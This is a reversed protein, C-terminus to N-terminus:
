DVASTHDPVVELGAVLRLRYTARFVASRAVERDTRASRLEAQADLYESGTIRGAEFLRRSEDALREALEVAQEETELRDHANAREAEAAALEVAAGDRTAALSALAAAEEAALRQRAAIRTARAVPTWSVLLVAEAWRDQDLGTNLLGIGRLQLEATPALNWANLRQRARVEAVDSRLATVDARADLELEGPAPPIALRDLPVPAVPEQIGLLRGLDARVVERRREFGRIEQELRLLALQLRDADSPLARGASVLQEVRLVQSELATLSQGAADLASDLEAIDLARELAAMIQANRTERARASAADAGRGQVAPQGLLTAADFLPQSVVVAGHGEWVPEQEIPAGGLPSPSTLAESRRLLEGELSLAPLFGARRAESVSRRAALAALGAARSAPSDVALRGIEGHTLSEPTQQADASDLPGLIMGAAAVMLVGAVAVGARPKSGSRRDRREGFMLRYLAPVVLITLATSAALGSIIAGAFPPWLSSASFLLPVMGAITTGATLVIPRFRETVAEILADNLDMGEARKSDALDILIIANNVVIGVLAIAGLMSTFGFPQRFIVLGPIVGVAALPVTSLVIMVKRFSRFQLLLITLLVIVGLYAASAVARNAQASEEAAGGVSREVGPPADGLRGNLEALVENFAAGPALGALVAATRQGNRRSIEVPRYVTQLRAVSSVPVVVGSSPSFLGVELLDEPPREEGRPGRVVVPVRQSGFEVEGAELGRTAALVAAALSAHSVGLAAMRAEDPQLMVTALSPSLTTRVDVAGPIGQLAATVRQVESAVAEADAGTVRIEVPATVPPGQELGSAVVIAEPLVERAWARIRQTLQPVNDPSQTTVLLQGRHPVRSASLVNYYFPPATRGAFAAVHVVEDWDSIERELRSVIRGTEGIHTGAPLEVDVVLQNRDSGPFFQLQILPMLAVGLVVAALAAILVRRPRRVALSGLRQPLLSAQTPDDSAAGSATPRLLLMAVTPTVIVAFFYSLTLTLMVVRPIASTFEATEGQALLLPIYSALTTGTAAALPVLLERVAAGAAEHRSAGRDLRWQIREAVVIANDVLLGLSMVLAAISIQHLVGGLTAYITLGGLAVVPVMVAVTMGLRVGMALIVMAAVIAVGQLLSGLLDRLRFSVRDPQFSVYDVTLEGQEARFSQVVEHVQEGFRVVDVSAQPEVGVTVVSRNDLWARGTVPEAAGRELRALSALPLLGGRGTAIVTSGLEDVSGIRTGPDVTTGVAGSRLAGGPASQLRTALLGTLQVRDIGLSAATADDLLVRVEREPEPTIEVARVGPVVRLREQLQEAADWLVLPDGSGGIAVIVSQLSMVRWDTDPESAGAPYEAAADSLAREVRTWVPDPDTVAGDLEIVFVAVDRRVSAEVTSIEEVSRLADETPVAVLEEITEAEAGPFLVTVSGFRATLSPDEQKPMLLWSLVGLAASALAVALIARRQDYLLRGLREPSM